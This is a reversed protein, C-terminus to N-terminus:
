RVITLYRASGYAARLLETGLSGPAKSFLAIWAGSPGYWEIFAPEAGLRVTFEWVVIHMHETPELAECIRVVADELHIRTNRDRVGSSLAARLEGRLLRLQDRILPRIDSQAIKLAGNLPPDDDNGVRLDGSQPPSWGENDAIELLHQAQALYARQLNRRYTDITRGAKVERWVAARVDDLMETPTYTDAGAFAEYEIMRAVRA